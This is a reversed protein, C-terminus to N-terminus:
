GRCRCARDAGRPSSRFLDGGLHQRHGPRPPANEPLKLIHRRVHAHFKQSLANLGDESQAVYLPPTEMVAGPAIAGEEGFFLVGM